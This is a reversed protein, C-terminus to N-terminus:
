NNHHLEEAMSHLAQSSSAFFAKVKTRQDLTLTNPDIAEATERVRDVQNELNDFHNRELDQMLEASTLFASRISDAHFTAEQNRQIRDAKSKLTEKKQQINIDDAGVQDVIDNLALSLLRIGDATYDHDLNMEEVSDHERVFSIYDNVQQSHAQHEPMDATADNQQPATETTATPTYVTEDRDVLEVIVWIVAAAIIIGLIWPWVPRKKKQINIEAM